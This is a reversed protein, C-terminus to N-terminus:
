NCRLYSPHPKCKKYFLTADAVQRIILEKDAIVMGQVRNNSIHTTLIQTCLLFLYSSIPCGQQIGRKLDFRPTSANRMKIASNGNSYLTQIASCFFEGFGFLKVTLFLNNLQTLHRIFTWSAYSVTILYWILYDLLDLVLRINNSVHRHRM